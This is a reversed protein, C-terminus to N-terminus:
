EGGEAKSILYSLNVCLGTPDDHPDEISWQEQLYSIRLYLVEKLTNILLKTDQENM